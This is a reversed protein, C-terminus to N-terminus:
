GILKFTITVKYHQNFPSKIDKCSLNKLQERVGDAIDKNDTLINKILIQGEEGITFLVDVSGTTSNRLAREPYKLNESIVKHINEAPARAPKIAFSSFGGLIFLTAIMLTPIFKLTKM